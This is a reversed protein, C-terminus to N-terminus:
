DALSLAVLNMPGRKVHATAARDRGFLRVQASPDAELNRLWQSNDRVTSVVVNDGIRASLLPVRRPKGSVRGTTEVVVAGFGLPLPNGIGMDVIPEVVANLGRFFRQTQDQLWSDLGTATSTM